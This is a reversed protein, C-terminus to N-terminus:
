ASQRRVFAIAAGQRRYAAALPDEAESFLEGQGSGHLALLRKEVAAQTEIRGGDWLHLIEVKAELELARAVLILRHCLLPDPEACMVAAPASGLLEFLRRLGTEFAELARVKEFDVRDGCYAEEESRRAGLEKGLFLYGLGAPVLRSRLARLSFAPHRRSYPVSRVDCVVAVGLSDLLRIFGEITFGSYGVTYLTHYSGV